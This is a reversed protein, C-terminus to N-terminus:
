FPIEDENTTEAQEADELAVAEEQDVLDLIGASESTPLLEVKKLQREMARTRVFTQEITGSITNIQKKVKELTSGFKEFETKVAGLIVWVESARKEIALSHFGMQLGNLIAILTTPGAVAVRCNRQLEEVLAPQRLVEAYLGETPLFLIGFDTTNPPDLYKDCIDQASRRVANNLAEVAGKVAASDGRESAELLRQYDEQPFKSDIPLWIPKGEERGPLKVAFEVMERSNEKVHVNKEFQEPALVQELVAQLQIEGWTGRTKVGSLVKKLDGVGIALAQMEGLGRQVAELNQSVQAFSEGLRKSLTDQLKEDVVKQMQDLRKENSEQLAQLRTEVTKKLEESQTRDAESFEKLQRVTAELHTTQTSGMQSLGETIAKNGERLAKALEERQDRSARAIEERFSVIEAGSTNIIGRGSTTFSRIVLGIL